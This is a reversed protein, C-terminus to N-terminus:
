LEVKASSSITYRLIYYYSTEAEAKAAVYLNGSDPGINVEASFCSDGCKQFDVWKGSPLIVVLNEASCELKFQVVANKLLVLDLPFALKCNQANFTVFQEPFPPLIPNEKFIKPIMLYETVLPLSESNRVNMSISCSSIQNMKVNRVSVFYHTGDQLSEVFIYESGVNSISAVLTSPTASRIEFTLESTQVEFIEKPHSLLTVGLAVGTDSIPAPQVFKLQTLDLKQPPTVEYELCYKKQSLISLKGPLCYVVAKALNNRISFNFWHDVGPHTSCVAVINPNSQPEIELEITLLGSNVSSQRPQILKYQLECSYQKPFGSFSVNEKVISGAAPIIFYTAVTPYNGSSISPKAFITLKGAQDTQVDELTLTHQMRGNTSEVFINEPPLKRNSKLYEYDALFAFSSKTAMEMFIRSSSVQFIQFPHSVAQIEPRSFVIKPVNSSIKSGISKILIENLDHPAQGLKAHCSQLANVSYYALITRLTEAKSCLLSTTAAKDWLYAKGKFRLSSTEELPFSFSSNPTDVRVVFEECDSTEYFQIDFDVLSSHPLYRIKPTFLKAPFDSIYMDPYGNCLDNTQVMPFNSPIMPIRLLEPGPIGGFVTL